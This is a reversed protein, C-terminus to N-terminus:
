SPGSAASAPRAGEAENGPRARRGELIVPMGSSPAITISRRVPRIYSFRPRRLSARTLVSALVMKMEFLAFAMGLCRRFGGGFPLWESPSFRQRLFRDPDFRTPDPYLEPRRHVLYISLLVPTGSDLDWGGVRMPRQLVRGVMPVVPQLRLVERVTADLLPLKTIRDPHLADPDELERTLRAQLSPSELIWRLAWSLSTATTEHGAVLLTLLEDRLEEDSMPKGDEDRARMLLSLIDDGGGVDPLARRRRFEGYLLADAEAMQRKFKGWPSWAGLDRQFTPLLLWPNTGVELLSVV